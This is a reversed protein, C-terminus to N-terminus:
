RYMRNDKNKGEVAKKGLIGAPLVCNTIIEESHILIKLVASPM